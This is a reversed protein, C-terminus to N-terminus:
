QKVLITYANNDVSIIYVGPSLRCTEVPSSATFKNIMKGTIDHIAVTCGTANVITVGNSGVSIAINNNADTQEIYSSHTVDGGQSDLVTEHARIDSAIINSATIRGGIGNNGSIVLDLLTTMGPLTSNQPDFLAIRITRQDIRRTTLKHRCNGDMTATKVTDIALGDPVTIDAQLAVYDSRTSLSIAATASAGPMFSINEIVLSEDPANVTRYPSYLAMKEDTLSPADLVISIIGVVDSFTIRLDNNVDSAEFSFEDVPLGVAYNATNVADAINVSGNDNSDGKIIKKAVYVLCEETVAGCQAKVIAEGVSLATLRGSNSVSAVSNDSTTWTITKDNTYVPLIEAELQFTDGETLHVETANLIIQEATAAVVEISCAANLEQPSETSPSVKISTQGIRIARIKDECIEVINNDEVDWVVEQSARLPLITTKPLDTVSGCKLTIERPAVEIREPLACDAGSTHIKNFKGWIADAEYKSVSGYNVSLIANKYTDTSFTYEEIELPDIIECYITSLNNANYFAYNGIATLGKPLTLDTLKKCGNFSFGGISRLTEPLKLNELEGCDSFASSGIEELGNPLVLNKLKKCGNFAGNDISRLSEPLVLRELEYCNYFTRWGITAVGEPVILEKLKYCNEFALWGIDVLRKPIDLRELNNCNSFASTGLTELWEPLTLGTLNVCGSFAYSGISRLSEPLELFELQSCNQLEYNTIEQIPTQIRLSTVTSASVMEKLPKSIAVVNITEDQYSITAPLSLDGGAPSGSLTNSIIADGQPLLCYVFTGDNFSPLLTEDVVDYFTSADFWLRQGSTVAAIEINYRGVPLDTLKSFSYHIISTEKPRMEIRTELYKVKKGTAADLFNINVPIYSYDDTNNTASLHATNTNNLSLFHGGNFKFSDISIDYTDCDVADSTFRWDGNEYRLYGGVFDAKSYFVTPIVRQWPRNDDPRWMFRVVYEKTQDLTEKIDTSLPIDVSGDDVVNGVSSVPLCIECDGVPTISVGVEYPENNSSKRSLRVSFLSLYSSYRCSSGEVFDLHTYSQGNDPVFNCFIEQTYNYGNISGGTGAGSPVLCSTLFYGDYHGGWGWNFHFYGNGDYGDCVFAHGSRNGPEWRDFGTYFVPQGDSLMAYIIEEWEQRTFSERNLAMIDTSYGFNSNLASRIAINNAGSSDTGYSMKAGYGVAKMLTAVADIAEAPSDANYSAAMKDWEFTIGDFNMYYAKRNTDSCSASGTPNLPWKYYRMIQSIATAVCGTPSQTNNVVPTYRNYPDTQNWTTELLPAIAAGSSQIPAGQTATAESYSVEEAMMRLWYDMGEPLDGGDPKNDIYGLVPAVNDSASLIMSGSDSSFLYVAPMGDTSNITKLLQLHRQNPTKARQAVSTAIRTAAEDPSLRKAHSIAYCTLLLFTIIALRKMRM